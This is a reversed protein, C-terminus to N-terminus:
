CNRDGREVLPGGPADNPNSTYRVDPIMTNPDRGFSQELARLSGSLGTGTLFANDVASYTVDLTLSVNVYDGRFMKPVTDIDFPQTLILKLAGILYPSSRGLEKLPCQLAQLDTHLPARAESLYQDAAGSLRGVSNVANILLNQTDAFHKILPPLDTLTRDLVDSRNGIYVLLRNTSDIAHTIDDRQQNLQDTFTDLKGLFSRIQEGRGHFINYVENQLVELNPIGGGRLILSLSALTQETTPYSSSNKLPITDGNRLLESSPNPPAVLEVHQSGLLSTQGIKAIANKPLKTSKSLGLTLTAVWNKLNIAKISGVFVDAVMVKSNGNIALTDPVQVYVIYSGPGDGPGGPIAVNSIGRWGCSSLVMAAMLLVLAQWSRRRILRSWTM